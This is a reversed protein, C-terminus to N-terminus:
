EIDATDSAKIKKTYIATFAAGLLTAAAIIAPYILFVELSDIEYGVGSDAGLMKFVPDIALKTLPRCLIAALLTSIVGTIVFRLTHQAIISRTRFGLAKMLAIESKEKAIFSREMLVSIMIVIIVTLILEMKKLADLAGAVGTTDEVFESVNMVSECDFIEKCLEAREKITAKGPHDDFDVQMDFYGSIHTNPVPADEHFRGSKGLNSMSDFIATVLYEDVNGYLDITVKDGISVDLNKAATETLAIENAYAPPTGKKYVYDSAKTNKCHQFRINDKGNESIVPVNYICEIHAKGPIGNDALKQEVEALAEDLTITGRDVEFMIDTCSMYLDSKTTGFLYLLKESKLTHVSNSIIMVLLTCIMFIISILGFQKPSSVVDNAALFGTTSLRSRSLQMFSKKRFREGTQGSRVADIPSLKKIKATCRWSFLLIVLVVGLSCLIGLLVTNDASFYMKRIVSKILMNGFPIGAICGIFAGIASIGIYKTLYLLRISSNKLGMAKMVGIERFEEAITFGITFRLVVFSVIVLIVSAVLLIVAIMVEMFYTKKIISIDGSFVVNINDSLAANVAKINDTDVYYINLALGEVAKPDSTLYAYDEDNLIFRPNGFLDSGLLADKSIGAFRVNLRQEGFVLDFRDGVSLGIMDAFYASLYVDGRDVSSITKNDENFYNLKGEGVPMVMISSGSRFLREGDKEFFDESVYVMHECKYGNIEPTNEICESIPAGGRYQELIVYDSVGAKDFFDDLGGMVATINNVSSTVFMTSLIVFLLLIINMTKKRKLDKKLISFFM